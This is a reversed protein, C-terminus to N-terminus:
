EGAAKSTADIQTLLEAALTESNNRSMSGDAAAALYQRIEAREAQMAELADAARKLAAEADQLKCFVDPGASGDPVPLLRVTDGGAPIALWRQEIKSM